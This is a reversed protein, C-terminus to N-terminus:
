CDVIVGDGLVNLSKNEGEVLARQRGQRAGRRGECDAADTTVGDSNGGVVVDGVEGQCAASVRLGDKLARAGGRQGDSQIIRDRGGGSEGQRKRDSVAAAGRYGGVFNRKVLVPLRARKIEDDHRRVSLRPIDRHADNAIAVTFVLGDDEREGLAGVIAAVGERASPSTDRRSFVFVGKRNVIIEDLSNSESLNRARSSGREVLALCGSYHHRRTGGVLQRDSADRDVEM